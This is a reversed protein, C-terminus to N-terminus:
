NQKRDEQNEDQTDGPELLDQPHITKNRGDKDRTVEQDSESPLSRWHSNRSRPTRKRKIEKYAGFRFGCLFSKRSLICVYTSGLTGVIRAPSNLETKPRATFRRPEHTSLSERSLETARALSKLFQQQTSTQRWRNGERGPKVQVLLSPTLLERISRIPQGVM